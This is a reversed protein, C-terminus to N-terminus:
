RASSLILIEKAVIDAIIRQQPSAPAASVFNRDPTNQHVPKDVKIADNPSQPSKRKLAAVKRQQALIQQGLDFSPVQDSRDQQQPNSIKEVMKSVFEKEINRVPPHLPTFKNKLIDEFAPMIRSSSDSNQINKKGASNSIDRNCDAISRDVHSDYSGSEMFVEKYRWYEVM